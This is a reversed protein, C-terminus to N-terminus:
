YRSFNTVLKRTAYDQSSAELLIQMQVWFRDPVLYDFFSQFAVDKTLFDSVEVYLETHTLYFTLDVGFLTPDGELLVQQVICADVFINRGYPDPLIPSQHWRCLM